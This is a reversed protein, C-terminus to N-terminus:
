KHLLFPPQLCASPFYSASPQNALQPSSSSVPQPYHAAKDAAHLPTPQRYHHITIQQYFVDRGMNVRMLHSAFGYCWPSQQPRLLVLDLGQLMEIAMTTPYLHLFGWISLNPKITPVEAMAELLKTM